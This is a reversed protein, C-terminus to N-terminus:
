IIQCTAIFNNNYEINMSGLLIQCLILGYMCVYVLRMFSAWSDKMKTTYLM